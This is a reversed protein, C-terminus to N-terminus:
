LDPSTTSAKWGAELRAIADTDATSAQDTIARVTGPPLLFDYRKEDDAQTYYARIWGSPLLQVGNVLLTGGNTDPWRDFHESDPTGTGATTLHIRLEPNAEANAHPFDIGM